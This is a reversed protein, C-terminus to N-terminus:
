IHVCVAVEMRGPDEPSVLSDGEAANGFSLEPVYRVLESDIVTAIAAGRAGIQAAADGTVGAKALLGQEDLEAYRAIPRVTLIQGGPAGYNVADSEGKASFFSM